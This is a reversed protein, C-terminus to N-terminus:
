GADLARCDETMWGVRVREGVALRRITAANPLKVVFQDNGAANLRCRIHDGLYILERV